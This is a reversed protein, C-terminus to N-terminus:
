VLERSCVDILMNHIVVLWFLFISIRPFYSHIPNIAVFLFEEEMKVTKEAAGGEM